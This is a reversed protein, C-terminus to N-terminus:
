NSIRNFNRNAKLQALTLETQSQNSRSCSILMFCIILHLATISIAISTTYKKLLRGTKLAIENPVYLASNQYIKINEFYFSVFKLKSFCIYLDYVKCQFELSVQM